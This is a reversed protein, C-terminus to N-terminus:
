ATETCHAGAAIVIAPQKNGGTWTSLIPTGNIARGWETLLKGSERLQSLVDETRLCHDSSITVEEEGMSREVFSNGHKQINEPASLLM